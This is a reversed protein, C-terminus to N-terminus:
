FMRLLTKRRYYRVLGMTDPPLRLEGEATTTRHQYWDAATRLILQMVGEPLGDTETWGCQAQVRLPYRVQRFTRGDDIDGEGWHDDTTIEVARKFNAAGLGLTEYHLETVPLADGDDDVLQVRNIATIPTREIRVGCDPVSRWRFEITQDFLPRNLEREVYETAGKVFRSAVEDELDGPEIRMHDRFADATLEATPPTIIQASDPPPLPRSDSEIM